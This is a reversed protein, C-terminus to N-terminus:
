SIRIKGLRSLDVCTSVPIDSSFGPLLEEILM